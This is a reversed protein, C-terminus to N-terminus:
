IRDIERRLIVSPKPLVCRWGVIAFHGATSQCQRTQWAVVAIWALMGAALLWLALNRPTM